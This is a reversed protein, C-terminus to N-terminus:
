QTRAARRQLEKIWGGVKKDPEPILNQYIEFQTLALNADHLYLDALVALNYHANAYNEDIRIASEYSVQAQKFKGLQRSLIGLENLLRPNKGHQLISKQLLEYAEQTKGKKRLIIAQNVIPGSLAPYQMALDKFRAEAADLNGKRMESLARNFDSRALKAQKEQEPDRTVAETQKQKLRDLVAASDQDKIAPQQPTNKATSTAEAKVTAPTDEPAAGTLDITVSEPMEFDGPEIPSEKKIACGSSLVLVFAVVRLSKISLM